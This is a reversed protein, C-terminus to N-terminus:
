WLIIMVTFLNKFILKTPLIISRVKTSVNKIIILSTLLNVTRVQKTRTPVKKTLSTNVDYM